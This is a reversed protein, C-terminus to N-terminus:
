LMTGQKLEQILQANVIQQDALQRVETTLHESFQSLRESLQRVETQLFEIPPYQQAVPTLGLADLVSIDQPINAPQSQLIAILDQLLGVQQQLAAVVIDTQDVQDAVEPVTPSETDNGTVRVANALAKVTVPDFVTRLSSENLKTIQQKM